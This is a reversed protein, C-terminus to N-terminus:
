YKGIGTATIKSSNPTRIGISAYIHTQQTNDPPPKQTTGIVRWPLGISHSTDSYSQSSEIALLGQNVLPQQAM